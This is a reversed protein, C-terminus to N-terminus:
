QDTYRKPVINVHVRIQTGYPREFLLEYKGLFGLPPQWYFVGAKLSSGLPLMEAHDGVISYGDSAGLSLEIRGLQEMEVSYAGSDDPALEVTPANLNYGSRLQVPGSLSEPTPADQPAAVGGGGANLVSFYRSGVGDGRGVNDYVNWSITHVRNTLKTTDIYFFGVAGNSNALGPFLTAIDSRFQNYAPHGVPAGDLIVTITSGDTPIFYPNQTLAWGFNVFANTSATGGQDPTDITGFPRTAHANDVTITKTGLDVTLGSKNTLIVHLKYTGNGRPGSGSSNPLFNSLMLYGWGGRYQYPFTPFRGAVDPRADAAFTANGIFVLGNAATGEGPLPERWIGVSTVEINDLGWGTM